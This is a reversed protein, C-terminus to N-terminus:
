MITRLDRQLMERTVAGRYVKAIKHDRDLVLTYPIGYGNFHQFVEQDGLLVTYNIGEREVFRKVREVGGQDLAIGVVEVESNAAVKKLEPIETMCPTCWTAWFNLIVANGSFSDSEVWAGDLSKLRFSPAQEGVEVKNQAGCGSLIGLFLCIIKGSNAAKM